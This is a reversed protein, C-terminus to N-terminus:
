WMSHANKLHDCPPCKPHSNEESPICKLKKMQDEVCVAHKYGVASSCSDTLNPRAYHHPPPAPPNEDAIACAALAAAAVTARWMASLHQREAPQDNGYLCAYLGAGDIQRM